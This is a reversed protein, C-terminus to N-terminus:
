NSGHLLDLLIDSKSPTNYSKAKLLNKTTPSPPHITPPYIRGRPKTNTTPLLNVNSNKLNPPILCNKKLSRCIANANKANANKSFEM